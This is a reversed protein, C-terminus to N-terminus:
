VFSFTYILIGTLFGLLMIIIPFIVYNIFAAEKNNLQSYISENITINQDVLDYNSYGRGNTKVLSRGRQNSNSTDGIEDELVKLDRKKREVVYESFYVSAGRQVIGKYYAVDESPLFIAFSDFNEKLFSPNMYALCKTYIGIQLFSSSYIDEKILEKKDYLNNPMELLTNYKIQKLSNNLIEIDKPDFSKICYGKEHIYKMALDMNIFVERLEDDSHFSRLWVSLKINDKVKAKQIHLENKYNQFDIIKNDQNSYISGDAQNIMSVILPTGNKTGALKFNNIGNFFEHNKFNVRDM